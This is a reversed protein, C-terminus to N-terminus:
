LDRGLHAVRDLEPRGVRGTGRDRHITNFIAVLVIWGDPNGSDADPEAYAAYVEDLKAKAAFVEGVSLERVSDCRKM